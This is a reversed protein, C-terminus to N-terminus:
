CEEISAVDSETDPGTSSSQENLSELALVPAVYGMATELTQNSKDKIGEVTDRTSCAAEGTVAVMETAIIHSAEMAARGEQIMFEEKGSTYREKTMIGRRMEYVFLCQTSALVTVLIFGLIEFIALYFIALAILGATAVYMVGFIYNVAGWISFVSLLLAVSAVVLEEIPAGVLLKMLIALLSIFAHISNLVVTAIRMDCITLFLM